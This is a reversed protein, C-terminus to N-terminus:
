RLMRLSTSRRRPGASTPRSLPRWSGPRRTRTQPPPQLLCSSSGGSRIERPRWLAQCPASPFSPSFIQSNKSHLTKVSSASRVVIVSFLLKSKLDDHNNLETLKDLSELTELRTQAYLEGYKRVLAAPRKDYGSLTGGAKSAEVEVDSRKKKKKEAVLQEKLHDEKDKLASCM